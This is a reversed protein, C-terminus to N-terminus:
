SSSGRGEARETLVRIANPKRLTTAWQLPTADPPPWWQREKSECSADAKFPRDIAAPDRDLIQGVRDARDFDIAAFLDVHRGGGLADLEARTV